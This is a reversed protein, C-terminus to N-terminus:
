SGTASRAPSRPGRPPPRRPGAPPSRASRRARALRGAGRAHADDVGDVAVRRLEQRVRDLRVAEVLALVRHHAPERARADDLLDHLHRALEAGVRDRVAAGALAVVLHPELDPEVHERGVQLDQRRDAVRADRPLLRDGEGGLPPDRDVVITVCTSSRRSGRPGCRPTRGAPPDRPREARPRTRRPGRRRGVARALGGLDRDREVAAHGHREVALRLGQGLDHAREVREAAGVPEPPDVHDLVAPHADLAALQVLHRARERDDPRVLGELVQRELALDRVM